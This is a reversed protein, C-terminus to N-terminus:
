LLVLAMIMVCDMVGVSVMGVFIFSADVPAPYGAIM